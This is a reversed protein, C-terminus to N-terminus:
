SSPYFAAGSANPLRAGVKKLSLCTRDTDLRVYPRFLLLALVIIWPAFVLAASVTAIFHPPLVLGRLFTPAIAPLPHYSQEDPRQLTLQSAPVMLEFLDFQVPDHVFSGSLASDKLPDTTTPHLRNPWTRHMCM